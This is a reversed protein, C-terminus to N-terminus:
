PAGARLIEEHVLSQEISAAIRDLTPQPAATLDEYRVRLFDREYGRAAREGSEVVSAWFDGAAREPHM